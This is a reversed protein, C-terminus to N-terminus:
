TKTQKQARELWEAPTEGVLDCPTACIPLTGPVHDLQPKKVKVIHGDGWAIRRVIIKRRNSKKEQQM